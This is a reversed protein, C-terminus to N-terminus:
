KGSLEELGEPTSEDDDLFNSQEACFNRLEDLMYSPLAKLFELCAEASFPVLEGKRNKVMSWSRVIFKAYLECDEQRNQALLAASLGGSAKMRRATNRTRKLIANFYPKNAETAPAVTLVPEGKIAFFTFEATKGPAVQLDQLHSFDNSSTM